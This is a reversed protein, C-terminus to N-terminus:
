LVLISVATQQWPRTNYAAGWFRVFGTFVAYVVMRSSGIPLLLLALLWGEARLAAATTTM